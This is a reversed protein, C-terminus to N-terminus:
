SYCEKWFRQNIRYNEESFPVILYYEDRNNNNQNTIREVSDNYLKRDYKPAFRFQQPQPLSLVTAFSIKDARNYQRATDLVIEKANEHSNNGSNIWSPICCIDSYISALKLMRRGTGGFLLKPYPKQVPKPALVANKSHYYKGQFTIANADTSDSNNSNNNSDNDLWLKIMLELAEKTKNVRVRADNWESYGEFEAQSWGAGIGVVVRGNSIIDLTAIM